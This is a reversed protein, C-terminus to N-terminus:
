FWVNILDNLYQIEKMSVTNNMPVNFKVIEKDGICM